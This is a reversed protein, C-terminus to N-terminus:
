KQLLLPKNTAKPLMEKEMKYGPPQHQGEKGKRTLSLGSTCVPLWARTLGAQSLPVSFSCPCAGSLARCRPSGQSKCAWFHKHFPPFALLMGYGPPVPQEGERCCLQRKCGPNRQASLTETYNCLISACRHSCVTLFLCNLIDIFCLILFFIKLHSILHHKAQMPVFQDSNQSSLTVPKM